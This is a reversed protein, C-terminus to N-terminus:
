AGAPAGLYVEQVRADRSIADPAGDAIIEGRHMVAIRSSVAFVIDMDHEILLATMSRARMTRQILEILAGREVVPVGCTPEDLLLLDPEGALALALELRRKDGYPLEQISRDLQAQLEVAEAIDEVEECFLTKSPWAMNWNRRRRAIVALRINDRVTTGDFASNIQFTRGIGLRCARNPSLNTVDRGKFAVRGDDSRVGGSVLNFLTTKGAGNPGIVSRLEGRAVDFSVRDVVARGSFRKSLRDVQLIVDSM